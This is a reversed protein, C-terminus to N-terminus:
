ITYNKFAKKESVAQAISVPNRMPSVTSLYGVLQKFLKAGNFLITAMGM